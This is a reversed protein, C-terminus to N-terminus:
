YYRNQIPFLSLAFPWERQTQWMIKDKDQFDRYTVTSLCTEAIGLVACTRKILQNINSDWRGSQGMLHKPCKILRSVEDVPLSVSIPDDLERDDAARKELEALLMSALEGANSAYQGDQKDKIVSLREALSTGVKRYAVKCDVMKALEVNPATMVFKERCVHCAQDPLRKICDSCIGHGCPVLVAPYSKEPGEHCVQCVWEPVERERKKPQVDEPAPESEVGANMADIMVQHRQRIASEEARIIKNRDEQSLTKGDPGFRTGNNQSVPMVVMQHLDMNNDSLLLSPSFNSLIVLSVLETIVVVLVETEIKNM